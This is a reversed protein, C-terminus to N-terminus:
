RCYKVHSKLAAVTKFYKKCKKCVHLQLKIGSQKWKSKSDKGGKINEFHVLFKHPYVVIKNEIKGPQGILLDTGLNDIVVIESLTLQIPVRGGHVNFQIPKSTQGVVNM